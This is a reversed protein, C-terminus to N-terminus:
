QRTILLGSADSSTVLISHCVHRFFLITHKAAPLKWMGKDIRIDVGRQPGLFSNPLKYFLLLFLLVIFNV